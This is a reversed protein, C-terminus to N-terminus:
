MSLIEGSAIIEWELIPIPQLVKASCKNSSSIDEMLGVITIFMKHTTKPTQDIKNLNNSIINSNNSTDKRLMLITM